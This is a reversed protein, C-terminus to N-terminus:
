GKQLAREGERAGHSIYNRVTNFYKDKYGYIFTARLSAEKKCYISIIIPSWV